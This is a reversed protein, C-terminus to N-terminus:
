RFQKTKSIQSDLRISREERKRRLDGMPAFGELINRLARQCDSLRQAVSLVKDSEFPKAYETGRVYKLARMRGAAHINTKGEKKVFTMTERVWIAHIVTNRDAIAKKTDAFVAAFAKMASEGKLYPTAARKLFDLKKDVFMSEVVMGGVRSDLECLNFIHDDLLHELMSSEVAVCGIAKLVDDTLLQESYM